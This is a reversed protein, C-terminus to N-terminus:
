TSSSQFICWRMIFTSKLLVQFKSDCTHVITLYKTFIPCPDSVDDVPSKIMCETKNNCLAEMKQFIGDASCPRINFYWGHSCISWSTRGYFASTIKIRGAPGCRITKTNKDCVTTTSSQGTM